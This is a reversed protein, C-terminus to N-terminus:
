REFFVDLNPDSIVRGGNPLHAFYWGMQHTWAGRVQPGTGDTMCHVRYGEKWNAPLGTRSINIFYKGFRKRTKTCFNCTWTKEWESWDWLHSLTVCTFASSAIAICYYQMEFLKINSCGQVVATTETDELKRQHDLCAQLCTNIPSTLVEGVPAIRGPILTVSERLKVLAIDNPGVFVKKSYMKIREAPVRVKPTGTLLDVSCWKWIIQKTINLHNLNPNAM